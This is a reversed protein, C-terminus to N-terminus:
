LLIKISYYSLACDLYLVDCYMVDCEGKRRKGFIIIIIIIIIIGLVIIYRIRAAAAAKATAEEDAEVADIDGAAVEAVEVIIIRVVM